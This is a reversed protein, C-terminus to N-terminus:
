RACSVRRFRSTASLSRTCEDEDEVQEVFEAAPGGSFNSNSRRTIKTLGISSSRGWTYAWIFATSGTASASMSAAFVHKGHEDCCEERSIGVM